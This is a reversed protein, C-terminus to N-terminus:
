RTRTPDYVAGTGAGLTSMFLQNDSGKEIVHINLPTGEVVPRTATM